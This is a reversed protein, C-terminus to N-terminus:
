QGDDLTTLTVQVTRGNYFHRLISQDVLNLIVRLFPQGVPTHEQGTVETGAPLPMHM